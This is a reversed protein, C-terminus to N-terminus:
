TEHARLHTYSVSTPTVEPSRTRISLSPCTPIPVSEGFLRSLREPAFPVTVPIDKPGALVAMVVDLYIPRVSTLLLEFRPVLEPNWPM